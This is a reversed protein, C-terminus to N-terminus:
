LSAVPYREVYAYLLTSGSSRKYPQWAGDRYEAAGLLSIRYCQEEVVSRGDFFDLYRTFCLTDQEIISAVTGYDCDGSVTVVQGGDNVPPEDVQCAASSSFASSSFLFIAFSVILEFM